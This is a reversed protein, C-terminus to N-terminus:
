PLFHDSVIDAWWGADAAVYSVRQRWEFAPLSARSVGNLRADGTHPDLDAIMRLCLSKGSGSRGTIVSAGGRPVALSFPGALASALDRVILGHDGEGNFGDTAALSALAM